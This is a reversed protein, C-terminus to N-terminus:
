SYTRYILDLNQYKEANKMTLNIVAFWSTNKGPESDTGNSTPGETPKRELM